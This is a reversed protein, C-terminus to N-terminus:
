RPKPLVPRARESSVIGNAEIVAPANTFYHDPWGDRDHDLLIVGGSMSEVIYKKAPDSTHKFTIGTKPTIDELQPVPRGSCKTSKAGIPPPTPTPHGSEAEAFSFICFAVAISRLVSLYFHRRNLRTRNQVIPQIKNSRRRQKSRDISRWNATQM